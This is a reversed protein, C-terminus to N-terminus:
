QPWWYGRSQRLLDCRELDALTGALEGIALGTREAIQDATAPDGAMAHLVRHGVSNPGQGSSGRPTQWGRRSGATLGLALLVDSPELLPHAGDALLANCGAASSNRRSGPIAMVSRGYRMAWEATIRAGGTATAEVVIVVDALAAIIRNRVPFRAPEPGTGYAQESLMVGTRRVDADLAVHRRPYVIDLGTALVGVTGGCTHSEQERDNAGHVCGDIAGRHAAGDIGLAMGSVVTVGHRVLYSALEQADSTGHPTAARTGVIAVRPRELVEPRSGEMFLVPPRGPLPSEIPDNEAGEVLMTANRETLRRGARPLDLTTAWVRALRRAVAPPGTLAFAANGAGVGAAALTPDGWHALVARLRAPTIGPLSALAAAAVAHPTPDGVHSAAVAM